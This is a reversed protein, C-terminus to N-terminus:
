TRQPVLSVFRGSLNIVRCNYDFAPRCFDDVLDDRVLGLDLNRNRSPGDWMVGCTRGNREVQM